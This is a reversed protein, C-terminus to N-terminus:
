TQLHQYMNWSKSASKIIEYVLQIDAAVGKELVFWQVLWRNVHRDVKIGLANGIEVLAGGVKAEVTGTSVLLHALSWAVPTYHGKADHLIYFSSKYGKQADTKQAEEKSGQAM